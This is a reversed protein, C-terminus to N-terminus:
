GFTEKKRSGDTPGCPNSISPQLLFLKKPKLIAKELFLSIQLGASCM